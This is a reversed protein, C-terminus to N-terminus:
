RAQRLRVAEARYAALIAAGNPTKKVWEETLPGAVERAFREREAPTVTVFTRGPAGRVAREADAFIKDFSAGLALSAAAGTNRDVARKAKAPLRAYADQNMVLAGGGSDLGILAHHTTVEPLEFVALGLWGIIAADVTRRQLLEYLGAPNTSIPAGGLRNAIDAAGKSLTAVRLGKVDALSSIPRTTNMMNQPFVFVALPRVEAFEASVLGDEVMKWFAGAGERAGGIDSPLEVVGAGRFKGGLPGLVIYGVDAVGSTVRDYVNGFNAINFFAQLKLAGDADAEVRAAWPRVVGTFTSSVPSAGPVAFRLTIPEDAVAPTSAILPALTVAVSTMNWRM